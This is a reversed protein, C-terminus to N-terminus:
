YALSRAYADGRARLIRVIRDELELANAESFPYWRYKVPRWLGEILNLEPSYPPLFYFELEHQRWKAQWTRLIKGNHVSVNDLVLITRRRLRKVLENMFFIVAEADVRAWIGQWVL